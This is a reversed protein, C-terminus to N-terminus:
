LKPPDYDSLPGGYALGNNLVIIQSDYM